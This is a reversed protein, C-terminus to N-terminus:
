HVQANSGDVALRAEASSFDRSAITLKVLLRLMLQCSTAGYLPPTRVHTSLLPGSRALTLCWVPPPPYLCLPVVVPSM